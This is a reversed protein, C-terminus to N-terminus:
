NLTEVEWKELEQQLGQYEKRKPDLMELAKRKAAVAEALMGQRYLVKSEFNAMRYDDPILQKGHEIWPIFRKFDKRRTSKLLQGGVKLIARVQLKADVDRWGEKLIDFYMTKGENRECFEEYRQKDKQHIDEVSRSAVISDLYVFARKRYSKMDNQLLLLDLRFDNYDQYYAKDDSLLWKDMFLRYQEVNRKSLAMQQTLRLMKRYIQSLEKEEGATAIDMYEAENAVFIREAEGGLLLYDANKIFFEMMKSSNEPMSTQTKLYEEVEEYPPEKSEILKGMYAKLFSEGREGAVYRKRLNILNDPADAENLAYEGAEILAGADLTGVTKHLLEGDATVFLLTPYATVKYKQAVEKGEREADLQVCVFNENFYVGVKADVFVTNALMKCPGCWTTYVDVFILKERERALNKIEEFSGSEFRIGQPQAMVSMWLMIFAFFIIGKKM